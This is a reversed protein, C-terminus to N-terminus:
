IGSGTSGGSSAGADDAQAGVGARPLRIVFVAGGTETDDVHLSGRHREVIIRYSIALGLGTGVRVGKTTFGPDFIRAKLPEPVGPGTDEIRVEAEGDITRTRVTLTGIESGQAVQRMAQIANIMINLFVQNLLGPACRVEPMPEFDRVVEVGQKTEHRLLLLTDDLGAELSVLQEDAEDLRAFSKLRKVIEGVRRSGSGIIEASERLIGMTKAVKKDRLPPDDWRKELATELKDLGLNLSGHMSHVAGIPTNVEHAIGAVLQGLSAMKAAQVMQGQTDRLELNVRELEALVAERKGAEELALQQRENDAQLRQRAIREEVAQRESQLTAELQVVLALETRAFDWALYISLTVLLGLIGLIYIGDPPTVGFLTPLMQALACVGMVLLGFEVVRMTRSRMMGRYRYGMVAGYGMTLCSFLFVAQVSIGDVFPLGLLGVGVMTWLPWAPYRLGDQPSRVRAIFAHLFALGSLSTSLISAKFLAFGRFFGLDTTAFWTLVEGLAIGSASFALASFLLNGVRRESRLFIGLLLHLLGLMMAAGAFGGRQVPRRPSLHASLVREDHIALEFGPEDFADHCLRGLWRTQYRVALLHGGPRDFSVFRPRRPYVDIPRAADSDRDAPASQFLKRGDLYVDLRGIANTLVALRRGVLAEPVDLEIRFWATALPGPRTQAPVSACGDLAELTSPGVVWSDDDFDPAAAEPASGLHARWGRSLYHIQEADAVADPTLSVPSAVVVSLVVSGFM